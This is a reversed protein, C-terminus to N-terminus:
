KVKYNEINVKIKEIANEIKNQIYEMAMDPRDAILEKSVTMQFWYGEPRYYVNIVNQMKEPEGIYFNFDGFYLNEIEKHQYIPIDYIHASPYLVKEVNFYKTLDM